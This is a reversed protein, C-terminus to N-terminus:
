GHSYSDKWGMYLVFILAARVVLSATGPSIGAALLNGVSLLSDLGFVVLGVLLALQTNRRSFLGLALFGLGYPIAFPPYALQQFVPNQISWAAIGLALNLGGILYLAGISWKVRRDTAEAM